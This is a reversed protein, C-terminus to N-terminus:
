VDLASAFLDALEAASRRNWTENVGVLFGGGDRSVGGLDVGRERLRSRFGSLDASTVGLGSSTPAQRCETSRSPTTDRSRDSSRSQCRSLMAFDTSSHRCMICRSRRSPGPGLCGPVLCADRTIGHRRAASAAGGPDSGVSGNFYKYLSVYVTDFPRAYDAVDRGTYASQLFLRAGDLHLRIGERRAFATVREM